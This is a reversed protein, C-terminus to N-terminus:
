VPTALYIIANWEQIYLMQGRLRLYEEHVDRHEMMKLLMEKFLHAVFVEILNLEFVFVLLRFRESRSRWQQWSRQWKKTTVTRDDFIRFCQEFTFYNTGLEDNYDAKFSFRKSSLFSINMQQFVIMTQIISSVDLRNKLHKIRLM